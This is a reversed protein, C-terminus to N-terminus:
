HGGGGGPHQQQQQLHQQQKQQKEHDMQLQKERLEQQEWAFMSEYMGRKRMSIPKRAAIPSLKFPLPREAAVKGLSRARMAPSVPMQQSHLLAATLAGLSAHVRPDLTDVAELTAVAGGDGHAFLHSNSLVMAAASMDGGRMGGAIALAAHVEDAGLSGTALSSITASGEVSEGGEVGGGAGGVGAGAGGLSRAALAHSQTMLATLADRPSVPAKGQAKARLRSKDRVGPRPGMSRHLVLDAGDHISAEDRVRAARVPGLLTATSAISPAPAVSAGPAYGQGLYWRPGPREASEKLTQPTSPRMQLM